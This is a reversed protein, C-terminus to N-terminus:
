NWLIYIYIWPIYMSRICTNAYMYSMSRMLPHVDSTDGKEVFSWKCLWQYKEKKTLLKTIWFIVYNLLLRRQKAVVEGSSHKANFTWVNSKHPHIKRTKSILASLLIVELRSHLYTKYKGWRLRTICTLEIQPSRKLVNESTRLSAKM